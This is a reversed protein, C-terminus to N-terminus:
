AAEKAAKKEEQVHEVAAEAAAEAMLSVAEPGLSTAEEAWLCEAKSAEEAKAIEAGKAAAAEAKEAGKKPRPKGALDDSLLSAFHELKPRSMHRMVAFTTDFRVLWKATGNAIRNQKRAARSAISLGEYCGDLEDSLQRFCSGHLEAVLAYASAM